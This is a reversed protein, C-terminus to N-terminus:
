LQLNGQQLDERAARREASATEDQRAAEAARELRQRDRFARLAAIDPWPAGSECIGATVIDGRREYACFDAGSWGRCAAESILARILDEHRATNEAPDAPLAVSYHIELVPDASPM